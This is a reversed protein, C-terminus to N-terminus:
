ALANALWKVMARICKKEMTDDKETRQGRAVQGADCWEEGDKQVGPLLISLSAHAVRGL